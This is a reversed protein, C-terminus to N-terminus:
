VETGHSLLRVYCLLEYVHHTTSVSDFMENENENPQGGRRMVIYPKGVMREEARPIAAALESSNRFLSKAQM